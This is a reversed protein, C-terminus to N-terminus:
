RFFKNFYYENTSWFMSKSVQVISTAVPPLRNWDIGEEWDYVSISFLGDYKIDYHLAEGIKIYLTEIATDTKLDTITYICGKVPYDSVAECQM